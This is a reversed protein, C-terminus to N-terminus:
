ILWNLVQDIKVSVLYISTMSCKKLAKVTVKILNTSVPIDRLYCYSNVRENYKIRQVQKHCDTPFRPKKLTIMQSSKHSAFLDFLAAVSIKLMDVM